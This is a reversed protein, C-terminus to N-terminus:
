RTGVPRITTPTSPEPVDSRASCHAARSASSPPPGAQHPGHTAARTGALRGRDTRRGPGARPRRGGGAGPRRPGHGTRRARASWPAPVARARVGRSETGSAAASPASRRTTPVRPRPPKAPRRSPETLWGQRVWAGHGTAMTGGLESQMIRRGAPDHDADVPGRRRVVRPAPGGGFGATSGGVDVQDVRPDDRLQQDRRARHEDALRLLELTGARGHQIGGGRPENGRRLLVLAVGGSYSSRETAPEGAPANSSWARSASGDTRPARPRPENRPRSRPGHLWCHADWAVQGVTTTRWLRGVM